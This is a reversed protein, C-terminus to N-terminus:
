GRHQAFAAAKHYLVLTVLGFITLLEGIFRRSHAIHSFRLGVNTVPLRFTVMSRSPQDHVEAPHIHASSQQLFAAVRRGAQEKERHFRFFLRGFGPFDISISEMSMPLIFLLSLETTFSETSDWTRQLLLSLNGLLSYYSRTVTAASNDRSSFKGTDEVRRMQNARSDDNQAVCLLNKL